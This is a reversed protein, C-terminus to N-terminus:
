QLEARSSLLVRPIALTYGLKQIVSGVFNEENCYPIAATIRFRERM